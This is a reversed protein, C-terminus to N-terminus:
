EFKQLIGKSSIIYFKEYSDKFYKITYGGYNVREFINGTQADILYLDGYNSLVYLKGNVFFPGILIDAVEKLDTRTYNYSSELKKKWFVKGTNINIAYLDRKNIAFIVGDDAEIRTIGGLYIQWVVELSSINFAKMWGDISRVVLLNNDLVINSVVGSINNESKISLEIEYVSRGTQTNVFSISGQSMAVVLINNGIYLPETVKNYVPTNTNNEFRWQQEGSTMSFKYVSYNASTLYLSDDIIVPRTKIFSGINKNWLIKKTNTDIAFIDGKYSAGFVIDDKKSINVFNNISNKDVVLNKIDFEFITNENGFKDVDVKVLNMDDNIFIVTNDEVIFNGGDIHTSKFGKSIVDNSIIKKSNLVVFKDDELNSVDYKVKEVEVDDLYLERDGKLKVELESCSFVFVSFVLSLLYKFIFRLEYM